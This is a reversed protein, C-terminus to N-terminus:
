TECGLTTLDVTQKASTLWSVRQSYIFFPILVLLWLGGLLYGAAVDSPWHANEFMRSYGVALILAALVALMPLLLKSKLGYHIGLFGWFGYFVTAGLVHGSPYSLEMNDMSPATHGVIGGITRDGLVIVVLVMVGVVAFGMAMRTAGLLWLFAVVAVGIGAAVPADTIASIADSIGGLGWFGHSTVWDLVRQDQSPSPDDDLALTLLILPIVLAAFAFLWLVVGRSAMHRLASRRATQDM